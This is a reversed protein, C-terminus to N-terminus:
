RAMSLSPNALTAVSRKFFDELSESPPKINQQTNMLAMRDLLTM